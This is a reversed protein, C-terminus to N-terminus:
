LTLLEGGWRYCQDGLAGPVTVGTILSDNKISSNFDSWSAPLSGLFGDPHLESRGQRVIGSGPAVKRNARIQGKM